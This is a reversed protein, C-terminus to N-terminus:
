HRLKANKKEKREARQAIHTPIHILHHFRSRYTSPTLFFPTSFLNRSVPPCIFYETSIPLRLKSLPYLVSPGHTRGPLSAPITKIQYISARRSAVLLIVNFTPNVVLLCPHVSYPRTHNLVVWRGSPSCLDTPRIRSGALTM